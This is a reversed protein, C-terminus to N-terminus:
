TSRNRAVLVPCPAHHILSRSISGLVLGTVAGHGRSGVVVLRAGTAFELMTKATDGNRLVTEVAVDPYKERWGALRESFAAREGDAEAEFNAGATIRYRRAYVQQYATWAHVAVLGTNRRSAEDFAWAIASESSPGTDVGLVVPGSQAVRDGSGRVVVLPSHGETVLKMAISGLLMASLRVQGTAGVVTLFADESIEALLVAPSGVHQVTTTRVSPFHKSVRHEAAALAERGM